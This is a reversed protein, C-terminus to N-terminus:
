KEREINNARKKIGILEKPQNWFFPMGGCFAKLGVMPSPDGFGIVLDSM